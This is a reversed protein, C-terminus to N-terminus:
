VIQDYVLLHINIKTTTKAKEKGFSTLSLFDFTWARILQCNERCTPPLVFMNPTSFVAWYCCSRLIDEPWQQRKLLSDQVMKLKDPSTESNIFDSLWGFCTLICHISVKVISSNIQAKKHNHHKTLFGGKMNNQKKLGTQYTKFDNFLCEKFSIRLQDSHYTQKREELVLLYKKRCIEGRKEKRGRQVPLTKEGLGKGKEAPKSPHRQRLREGGQDTNEREGARLIWVADGGGGEEWKLLFLVQGGRKM